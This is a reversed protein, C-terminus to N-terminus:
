EKEVEVETMAGQRMGLSHAVAPSVDLVRGAQMPGRDTVTAKATKGNSKNTIPRGHWLSAVQSCRDDRKTQLGKREGDQPWGLSPQLCGCSRDGSESCLVSNWSGLFLLRVTGMKQQDDDNRDRKRAYRNAAAADAEPCLTRWRRAVFILNSSNQVPSIRAAPIRHQGLTHRAGGRMAAELDNDM